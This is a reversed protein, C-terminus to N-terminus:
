LNNSIHRKMKQLNIKITPVNNSQIKKDYSQHQIDKHYHIIGNVTLM